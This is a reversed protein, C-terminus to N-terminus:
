RPVVQFLETVRMLADDVLGGRCGAIMGVAAGCVFALLTGSGAVLLSALAFPDYTALLPALVAMALTVLTLVVGLRGSPLSLVARLASRPRLVPPALVAAPVLEASDSARISPPM